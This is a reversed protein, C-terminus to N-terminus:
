RDELAKRFMGILADLSSDISYNRAEDAYRQSMRNREEPHEIWWDIRQALARSDFVPYLSEPCLAFQSTGILGGQAIVPVLGERTAELCSLGEVEVYACHVYLYSKREVERLEEPTYFGFEPMIQLTGQRYLKEAKKRYCEAMPGKGAFILRIRGAYRSYRMAELLTGQSKEKSLRGTCLLTIEGDPFVPVPKVPTEPLNIGNSIVHLRAKTHHQELYDRVPGTPCQIDTCHNFVLKNWLQIIPPNLLNKKRLGFNATINHPYLHFTATCVKGQAQATKRVVFELPMAEELHIVDAWRVAERIITRDIKAYSFGNARIIPEFLPFKFHKLPFEPQPGAPDPNAIAMLRVDVERARLNRMTNQISTTLGNGRTYANNCVFLIKM